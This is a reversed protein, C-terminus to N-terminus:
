EWNASTPIRQVEPIIITEVGFDRNEPASLVHYEIIEKPKTAMERWQESTSRLISSPSDSFIREEVGIPQSDFNLPV